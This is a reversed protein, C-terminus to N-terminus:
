DRDAGTRLSACWSDMTVPGLRGTRAAPSRGTPCTSVGTPLRWGASFHLAGQGLVHRGSTGGGWPIVVVDGNPSPGNEDLGTTWESAYLKGGPGFAIATIATLGSAYVTTAGTAPDYRYVNAGGPGDEFNLTGIYSAGDPGFALSTPVPQGTRSLV